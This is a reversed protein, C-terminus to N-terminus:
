FHHETSNSIFRLLDVITLDAVVRKERDLVPIEKVNTEIMRKLAIVVEEDETTVVPNKLMIDKATEATILSMLFRPHIQPEYSASFVHRVLLELSITGSLKGDDDVVYLRRSHEFNIAAEVVEEIDAKERILPLRRKKFTAVLESVKMSGIIEEVDRM